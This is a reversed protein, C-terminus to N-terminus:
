PLHVTHYNSLLPPKLLLHSQLHGYTIYITHTFFPIINLDLAKEIEDDVM